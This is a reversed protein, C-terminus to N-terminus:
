TTGKSVEERRVQQGEATTRGTEILSKLRALDEDMAQKPDAGLLSAVVHGLAGAPPTYGLRVTVRTGGGPNPDFRVMGATHVPQGEISKWALLRAPVRRTVVADWEATTGAPGAVKWHSRDQGLSRVERVHAMFRPFNEFNSWLEYVEEPSAEINIAKQVTVAERGNDAGSGLLRRPPVNTLGRLATGMGIASLLLGTVGGHRMGYLGLLGGGASALLRTAPSWNEQLLEMRPERPPPNGQLASVGEASAHPQLQNEVGRVGRVRGMATVVRDAEDALAPGRLTLFGDQAM